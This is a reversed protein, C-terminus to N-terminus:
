LMVIWTNRLGSINRRQASLYRANDAGLDQAGLYAAVVKTEFPISALIKKSKEEDVGSDLCRGDSDLIGQATEIETIGCALLNEAATRVSDPTLRFLRRPTHIPPPLSRISLMYAIWSTIGEQRDAIEPHLHSV